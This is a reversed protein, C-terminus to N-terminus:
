IDWLNTYHCRFYTPELYKLGNPYAARLRRAFDVDESVSGFQDLWKVNCGSKHTLLWPTNVVLGDKVVTQVFNANLKPVSITKANDYPKIAQGIKEFPVRTINEHDYWAVNVMWDANPELNHYYVITSLFKPHLCDDSDMYTILDGSAASVGLRRPVGRYFKKGDSEYYMNPLGNKDVYVYKINRIDAYLNKYEQHTIECGDSVIILESNKYEQLLFSEVARRFKKVSDVRSGPYDGLYTQMVISVLPQISQKVPIQEAKNAAEQQAAEARKAAEIKSEEVAKSSEKKEDLGFRPDGARRGWGIHKVYGFNDETGISVIRFGKKHSRYFADVSHEAGAGLYGRTLLKYDAMRKLGPNWSFGMYDRVTLDAGKLGGGKVAFSVPLVNRVKIGKLEEYGAAINNLIKDSKPRIWAQLVTEDAQLVKMSAEIFNARYFEWDEECHFIYETDVQAYANDISKAQGFKPSNFIFELKGKYKIENLDRCQQHVQPDNSDEAIIYKKIPYRNYKMFSDLTKEMLDVRGCATMVFTVEPQEVLPQQPKRQVQEDPANFQNLIDLYDSM